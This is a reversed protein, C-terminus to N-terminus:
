RVGKDPSPTRPMGAAPKRPSNEEIVRWTVYAALALLLIRM